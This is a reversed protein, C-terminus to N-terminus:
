SPRLEDRDEVFIGCKIIGVATVTGGTTEGALYYNNFVEAVVYTHVGYRLSITIRLKCTVIRMMADVIPLYISTHSLISSVREDSMIVSNEHRASTVETKSVSDRNAEFQM